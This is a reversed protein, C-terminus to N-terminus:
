KVCGLIKSYVDRTYLGKGIIRSLISRMLRKQPQLYEAYYEGTKLSQLAKGSIGSDDARVLGVEHKYEYLADDIIMDGSMDRDLDINYGLCGILQLEFKRICFETKDSRERISNLTDKYFEFLQEDPDGKATVKLILENLYYASFINGYFVDKAFESPEAHILTLLESRGKWSVLLSQFPQIVGSFPSKTRRAGKAICSVRGETKTFLEVILSTERYKRTHLVYSEILM